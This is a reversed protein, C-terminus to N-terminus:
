GRSSARLPRKRAMGPRRPYGPPTERVKSYVYLRRNKASQLPDLDVPDHTSLGLERAAAAGDAEEAADPRGKWAVLAGGVRLLPAAYEALVPLPALARATVLDHIGIGDRWEEARAHIVAVNRLGAAAAARELFACKKGVSEVLSVRADPLAAALALGPFGSGSGLDAITRAARVRDGLALAALSDAVHADIARAPERVATVAHEARELELLVRELQAPATPPLRHQAALESLRGRVSV